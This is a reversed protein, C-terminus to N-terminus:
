FVQGILNGHGPLNDPVVDVDVIGVDRKGLRCSVEARGKPSTPTGFAGASSSLSSRTANVAVQEVLQSRAAGSDVLAEVDVGNVQVTVFPLCMRPDDDDPRIALALDTMSTVSDARPGSLLLVDATRCTSRACQEVRDAEAEM